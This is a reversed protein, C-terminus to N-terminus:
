ITLGIDANGLPPRKGVRSRSAESACDREMKSCFAGSRWEGQARTRLLKLGAQEYAKQIQAFEGKLIGALVLTGGPRLRAVIRERVALLLTSVLNACIFDYKERRRSPLITIDGRAIRLKRAVGNRMANERAVRVAEPDFDIARVPAYGLKAAAIALIGSGTGIDWFSQARGTKRRAALERLCFATTPHNGTGFSLGPDLVVVAQGKRPRRKIWGPKILLRTGIEIPKFHRKWSEAWDERAVRKALIKGAGINLGSAQIKRLGSALVARKGANWESAKECYISVTTIKTEEDTYVAAPRGSLEELLAVVADEAEISTVACVERLSRRKM